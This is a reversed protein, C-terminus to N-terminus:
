DALAHPYPFAKELQTFLAKQLCSTVCAMYLLNARGDLPGAHPLCKPRIQTARARQIRLPIRSAHSEMWPLVRDTSDAHSLIDALRILLSAPIVEGIETPDAWRKAPTTETVVQNIGDQMGKRKQPCADVKNFSDTFHCMNQAWGSLYRRHMFMGSHMFACVNLGLMLHICPFLRPNSVEFMAEWAGTRIFGAHCGHADSEAKCQWAGSDKVFHKPFWGVQWSGSGLRSM